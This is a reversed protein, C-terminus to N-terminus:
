KTLGSCQPSREMRWCRTHPLGLSSFAATGCAPPSGWLSSLLLRYRFTVPVVAPQIKSAVMLTFQPFAVASDPLGGLDRM